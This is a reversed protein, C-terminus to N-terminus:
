IELPLLEDWNKGYRTETKLPICLPYASEMVQKVLRATELAEEEPCELLLEDHVQLILQGSLGKERLAEPIRIMALKIIDAATGQIPANIAEREERNRLTANKETKLTPFYRRRGLLTEVYGQQAAQLRVRDLYAKVGPFRRFYAEVFNEAEALTLDTTRALGYPSMGYILGFNIAKAHRRQEKTVAEIPVNYIAAATAAHIDQDARFAALMAQDQAIHAVIRLEVQSYDVSLLVCGPAAIFAQRVKRGTESRVPINQLNPESSAIRGTVSGTQNFSTHIRGTKPNVQQPLADVYTSKLKALERYELIWDVVPHRGRLEELIGARTSYFGSATRQNRNPPAIRLRNFLVESLQPPSNLNFTTGVAEYIQTEIAKMRGALEESLACLLQVDLCVGSMEMDALVTVLPMELDELLNQAAKQELEKTLLPQLRFVVAADAAAYPAVQEIPLEAMSVQKKGKGILEEITTMPWNLRVWALNKLGLNHSNPDCLWEAIMSDFSLPQVRLGQRALVIFDYKLNHGIKRIRTDTLPKRLAELVRALPLQRLQDSHHGVPLYYGKEGSTALSLGVLEARMADTATTETDIAIVPVRELQESLALLATETNIVEYPLLPTSVEISAEAAQPVEFLSLQATSNRPSPLAVGYLKAVERFRSLLTRFELQRFIEEVEQLDFQGIRAREPDFPIDLHTTITALRRSLYAMERDALLKKRTAEPIEDLHAYIQDLNGYKQLLAIATKEGIGRVGPINDSKDGVLAKYDVVQDPTIGLTAKVDEPFYNEAESLTKGPLNVVIRDSVLQLLDRDGTIIKVAYGDQAAQKAISGLVDDAEYGEVELRPIRLADLIQRIREIQPTLDDPMKARTAKYEPYIEDRFTRGTDFAVALYEPRESELIRLLVSVFGFTGATPEGSKTRFGEPNGRTLAFYVRYALAHGDILYLIPPM